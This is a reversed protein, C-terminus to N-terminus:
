LNKVSVYRGTKMSRAQKIGRVDLGVSIGKSRLKLDRGTIIYKSPKKALLKTDIGRIDFSAPRKKWRKLTKKAIRRTDKATIRADIRGRRGRRKQFKQAVGLLDTRKDVIEKASSKEYMEDIYPILNKGRPNGYDDLTTKLAHKVLRRYDERTEVKDLDILSNVREDAIEGFDTLGTRKGM